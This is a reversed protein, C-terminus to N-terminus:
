QNLWKFFELTYGGPDSFIFGRIGTEKNDKPETLIKVGKKKLYDFWGDVDDAIWSLMVPKDQSTRHFGKSEDVIGVFSNETVKYIRVWGLNTTPKFEMTQEYFEVAKSFDSYYLFVVQSSIQPRGKEQASNLSSASLFLSTIGTILAIVVICKKVLKELVNSKM